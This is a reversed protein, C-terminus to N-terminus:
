VNRQLRGETWFHAERKEFVNRVKKKANVSADGSRALKTSLQLVDGLPKCSLTLFSHTNLVSLM